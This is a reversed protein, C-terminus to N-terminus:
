SRALEILLVRVFPKKTDGFATLLSFQISNVVIEAGEVGALAEIDLGIIALAGALPDDQRAQLSHKADHLNVPSTNSLTYLFFLIATTLISHTVFGMSIAFGKFRFTLIGVAVLFYFLSSLSASLSHLFRGFAV